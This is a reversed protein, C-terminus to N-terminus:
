CSPKYASIVLPTVVLPSTLYNGWPALRCPASQASPNNAKSSFELSLVINVREGGASTKSIRWTATFSWSTVGSLLSVLMLSWQYGSGGGSHVECCSSSQKTRPWTALEFNPCAMRTQCNLSPKEHSSTERHVTLHSCVPTLLVAAMLNFHEVSDDVIGNNRYCCSKLWHSISVLYEGVQFRRCNSFRIIDFQQLHRLTQDPFVRIVNWILQRVLQEQQFHSETDCQWRQFRDLIQGFEDQYSMKWSEPYLWQKNTRDSVEQGQSLQWRQFFTKKFNFNILINKHLVIDWTRNLEKGMRDISLRRRSSTGSTSVSLIM